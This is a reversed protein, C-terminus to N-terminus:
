KGCRQCLGRVKKKHTCCTVFKIFEMPLHYRSCFFITNCNFLYFNGSRSNPLTTLIFSVAEGDLHSSSNYRCFELIIYFLRSDYKLILIILHLVVSDCLRGYATCLLCRTCLFYSFFTRYLRYNKIIVNIKSSNSLDLILMDNNFKQSIYM